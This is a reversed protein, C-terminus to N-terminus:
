PTYIGIKRIHSHAKYSLMTPQNTPKYLKQIHSAAFIYTPLLCVNYINRSISMNNWIALM